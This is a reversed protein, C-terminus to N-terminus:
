SPPAKPCHAWSATDVIRFPERTIVLAAEVAASGSGAKGYLTYM